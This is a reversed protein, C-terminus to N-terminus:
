FFKHTVFDTPLFIRLPYILCNTKKFELILAVLSGGCVQYILYIDLYKLVCQKESISSPWKIAVYLVPHNSTTNPSLLSM